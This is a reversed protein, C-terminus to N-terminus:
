YTWKKWTKLNKCSPIIKSQECNVTVRPQLCSHHPYQCPSSLLQECQWPKLQNIYVKQFCFNNWEKSFIWLSLLLDWLFMFLSTKRKFLFEGPSKRKSLFFDSFNSWKCTFNLFYFTFFFFFLAFYCHLSLLDLHQLGSLKLVWGQPRPDKHLLLLSCQERAECSDVTSVHAMHSLVNTNTVSVRGLHVLLCFMNLVHM